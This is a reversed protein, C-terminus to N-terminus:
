GRAALRELGVSDAVLFNFLIGCFGWFSFLVARICVLLKASRVVDRTLVCWTSLLVAVLVM